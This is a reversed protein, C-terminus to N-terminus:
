AATDVGLAGLAALLRRTHKCERQSPSVKQWKWAPCSCYSGDIAVDYTRGAASASTVKATQIM